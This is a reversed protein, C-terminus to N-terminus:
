RRRPKTKLREAVEQARFKAIRGISRVPVPINLPFRLTGKSVEYGALEDQLAAVLELSAPYLSYFKKWGAFFLTREGNLKYAPIRYSITEEALPVAAQIAERVRRVAEPAAGPQAEIYEDVTRFATTVAM